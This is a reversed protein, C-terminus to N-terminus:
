SRPENLLAIMAVAPRGVELASQQPANFKDTAKDKPPADKDSPPPVVKDKDPMVKDKDPPPPPPVVKDKDKDKDAPPIVVKDKDAPVVVKDTVKITKDKDVPVVAKDTVTTKDKDKKDKEGAKPCGPISTFGVACACLLVVLGIFRNV